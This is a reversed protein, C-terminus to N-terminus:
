SRLINIFQLDNKFNENINNKPLIRTVHCKNLFLVGRCDIEDNTDHEWIEKTIKDADVIFNLEQLKNIKDKYKEPIIESYSLIPSVYLLHEEPTFFKNPNVKYNKIKNQIKLIYTPDQTKIFHYIQTLLPAHSNAYFWIDPKIIKRYPDNYYYDFVWIFGEIYQNILHKMHPNNLSINNIGFFDHYYKKVSTDIKETKWTYTNNDISIYGLNLPEANLKKVYQDLMNDLKFIEEDYKTIKFNPDIYTVSKKLKEQYFSNKLKKSYRKFTINIEPLKNHKKYFDMYDKLFDQINKNPKNNFKTLKMLKNMFNTENTQYNNVDIKNKIVRNNLIRLKYLFNNLNEIFNDKNNSNIIKRLKDYNRYHSAMYIKQLNSGENKYLIQILLIFVEQDLTYFDKSTNDKDINIIYKVSLTLKAQMSLLDVYNEIITDFDYKVNYSEIKPLFDNGFITLIFVIDNIINKEDLNIKITPQKLKLSDSIYKCLNKNLSNIKIIDYNNQQQNHRLIQIEANINTLLLCLLTMDSDPSYVTINQRNNMKHVYDIIKREGEGFEDQGSYKYEILNPIVKKIENIFYDYKLLLDIKNMFSTGPSINIKSWSLKNQEYLYRKKDTMLDNKYQNFINDKINNILTGMYRRKKQEIMKAKNPVGDIAIFLHKLNNNNIFNKLINITYDKVKLLIIDDLKDSIIKKFNSYNINNITINYEKILEKVNTYNLNNNILHYLIYNMDAVVKSSTIHIISNYDILLYDTNLVKELKYTFSNKYNTINNEEISSFFKEIGM